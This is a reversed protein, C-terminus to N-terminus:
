FFNKSKLFLIEGKNFFSFYLIFILSSPISPFVLVFWSKYGGVGFLLIAATFSAQIPTLYSCHFISGTAIEKLLLARHPHLFVYLGQTSRVFPSTYVPSGSAVLAWHFSLSASHIFYLSTPLFFYPLWTKYCTLETSIFYLLNSM